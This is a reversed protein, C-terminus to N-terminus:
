SNGLATVYINHLLLYLIPKIFDLLTGLIEVPTFLFVCEVVLNVMFVLLM